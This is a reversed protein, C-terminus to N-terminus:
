TPNKMLSLHQVKLLKSSDFFTVRTKRQMTEHDNSFGASSLPPYAMFNFRYVVNAEKEKILDPVCSEFILNRDNTM